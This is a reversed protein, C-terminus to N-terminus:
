LLKDLAAVLRTVDQQTNYHVLSVRLVGKAASLGMAELLRVAYFNGAGALIGEAALRPILTSPEIDTALAFTPARLAAQRPGLLRVDPRSDLWDLFPQMLDQDAQHLLARVRAPRGAADSGGHHADLADFYEAVGRAAAVQAHDAGAPVLRKRLQGANFVHGQNALREALAPRLVMLGQHPGFTKYLSFLYLDAGLEAVDPLGHPAYSVGDVVSIVGATPKSLLRSQRSRLILAKAIKEGLMQTQSRLWCTVRSPALSAM